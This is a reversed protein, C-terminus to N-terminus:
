FSFSRCCDSIESYLSNIPKRGTRADESSRSFYQHSSHIQYARASTFMFVVMFINESCFQIIEYKICRLLPNCLISTGIWWVNIFVDTMMGSIRMLHFKLVLFCVFVPEFFWKWGGIIGTWFGFFMGAVM